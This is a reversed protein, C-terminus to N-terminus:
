RRLSPVFLAPDFAVGNKRIEFHLHPGTSIGTNGEAAIRQGAKVVDGEKVYRRSLHYYRTEYGGAHQIIIHRGRPDFVPSVSEIVVGPAAAYVANGLPGAIDTGEHRESGRLGTFTRPARRLGFPSSVWGDMPRQFKPPVQAALKRAHAQVAAAADKAAAKGSEALNKGSNSKARADSVLIKTAAPKLVEIGQITLIQQENGRRLEVTEDTIRQVTWYQGVTTGGLLDGERVLTGDEMGKMAILARPISQSNLIGIVRIDLPNSTDAFGQSSSPVVACAASVLASLLFVASLVTFFRKISFRM